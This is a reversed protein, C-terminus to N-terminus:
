FIRIKKEVAVCIQLGDDVYTDGVGTAVETPEM